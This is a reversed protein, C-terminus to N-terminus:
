STSNGGTADLYEAVNEKSLSSFWLGTHKAIKKMRASDQQLDEIFAAVGHQFAQHLESVHIAVHDYGGIRNSAEQLDEAKATGWAYVIQRAKGERSLDSEATLTHLIGCRAAYLELSTCPFPHSKLLYEDVWKMFSSRTSKGQDLSALVDIGSYILMLAPVIRKDQICAEIALFLTTLNQYFSKISM